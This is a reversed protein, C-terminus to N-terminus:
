EAVRAEDVAGGGARVGVDEGVGRGLDLLGDLDRLSQAADVVDEPASAFAVRIEVIGIQFALQIM